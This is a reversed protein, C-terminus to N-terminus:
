FHDMLGPTGYLPLPRAAKINFYVDLLMDPESAVAVVRDIPPNEEIFAQNLAPLADFEQALHWVDLSATALSNFEGSIKSPLYRYESYREQYGFVEDDAETGMAYIEKNLVAQEGLHALAPWYYDFRTQRSWYRDLGQQYTLDARVNVIGLICGHETASYTFGHGSASVTGYAALNGQPTADVTPTAPSQMTQQVPSINIPSHGGGLFQPRQHVLMQPDTVGFHSRLIEPYRTGGRADRELLRQIQISERLDNISIGTASDLDAYLLTDPVSTSSTPIIATDTVPLLMGPYTDVQNPVNDFRIGLTDSTLQPEAFIPANGQLDVTVDPGKQPWPLCGTLYDFRKRRKQVTYMVHASADPGNGTPVEVPPVLNQDRFWNNFIHNYARFHLANVHLTNFTGGKIPLGMYDAFDSSNIAAAGALRPVVFDTSAGPTKQEGNFEEWKDWLQRYPTFLFFTELFLNDLLPKVPTALRGFLSARLNITDGPLVEMNLIPILDGANFTTKLGHSLNFSSRPIDARKTQSFQHSQTSKM